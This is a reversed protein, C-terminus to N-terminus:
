MRLSIAPFLGAPNVREDAGYYLGFVLQLPLHYAITTDLKIELGTGYFIYGLRESYLKKNAYDYSTGDLTVADAFIDAHCRQIFIPKTTNGGYSYSLPFRYELTAQYMSRGVFVGTSYGRMVMSRIGPLTQYAASLTSVGFVPNDLRPALSANAFFALVHREPLLWGALFKSLRLDTVDHEFDSIEPLYHRHTLSVSGGKEPSIELGRHKANVYSIQVEPGDRKLSRGPVAITSSNWGIAGTWRDSLGPIYFGAVGEIDTIQRM